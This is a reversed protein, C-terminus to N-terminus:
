KSMRELEARHARVFELNQASQGEPMRASPTSALTAELLGAQLLAATTWVYDTVSWGAQEIARRVKANSELRAITQSATESNDGSTQITPDARVAAELNKMTAALKGVKDMDLKYAAIDNSTPNAPLASSAPSAIVASTAASTDRSVDKGACALAGFSATALILLRLRSM